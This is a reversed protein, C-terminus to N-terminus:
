QWRRSHHRLAAPHPQRAPWGLSRNLRDSVHSMRMLCPLAKVRRYGPALRRFEWLALQQLRDSQCYRSPRLYVLAEEPLEGVRREALADPSTLHHTIEVLADYHVHLPGPEAHTRLLRDGYGGSACHPRAGNVGDVLEALVQQQPAMAAAIHLVFDAPADVTYDLDVAYRIRAKSPATSTPSDFAIMAPTTRAVHIARQM